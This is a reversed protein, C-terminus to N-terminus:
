YDLIAIHIRPNIYIYIHLSHFHKVKQRDFIKFALTNSDRAVEPGSNQTGQSGFIGAEPHPDSQSDEENTGQNEVNTNGFTGPVIVSHSRIQQNLLIEDLKSLAGM